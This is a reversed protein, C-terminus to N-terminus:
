ILEWEDDDNTLLKGPRVTQQTIKTKDNEEEILEMPEEQQLPETPENGISSDSIIDMPVVQKELAEFREQQNKIREHSIFSDAYFEFQSSLRWVRFWIRSIVLLQQLAIMLVLTLTSRMGIDGQLKIYFYFVALPLLLLLLYLPYTKHLHRTVYRVAQWLHYAVRQSDNLMLMYKSYDGIQLLYFALCLHAIFGSLLLHYLGAENAFQEFRIYAILAVPLYVILVILLHLMLLYISLRLFRFFYQGCGAFFATTTYKEKNLSRLIGGTFFVSLLWYFIILILASLGLAAFASQQQRWLDSLILFDFGNQLHNVALSEGLENNLIAALGTTLILALLLNVAYILGLIQPFRISQRFGVTYAKLVRM